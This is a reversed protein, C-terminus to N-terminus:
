ATESPIRSQSTSALIAERKVERYRMLIDHMEVAANHVTREENRIPILDNWSMCDAEHRRIQQRLSNRWAYLRNVMERAPDEATPRHKHM